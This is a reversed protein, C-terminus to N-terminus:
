SVVRLAPRVGTGRGQWPPVEDLNGMLIGAHLSRLRMTPEIGVESVLRERISRYVGLAEVVRGSRYLALMYQAHFNEHVPNEAILSGLEHLLDRHWGMRLEVDICQEYINLRWEELRTVHSQLHMGVPVNALVPGRWLRLASRLEFSLTLDDSDREAIRARRLHHDVDHVDINGSGIKLTYSHNGTVLMKKADEVTASSTLFRRVQLVRTHINPVGSAPADGDWLEEKCRAVSVPRNAHLLFLALLQRTMPPSPPQTTVQSGAELPGLVYFKM